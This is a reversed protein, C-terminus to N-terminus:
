MHESAYRDLAIRHTLKGEGESVETKIEKRGKDQFQKEGAEIKLM